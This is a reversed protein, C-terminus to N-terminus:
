LKLLPVEDFVFYIDSPTYFDSGFYELVKEWFPSEKENLSDCFLRAEEVSHCVFMPVKTYDDYEGWTGSIVFENM